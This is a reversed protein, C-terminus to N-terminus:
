ENVDHCCPIFNERDRRLESQVIRILRSPSVLDLRNNYITNRHPDNDVNADNVDHGQGTLNCIIAQPDCDASAMCTM